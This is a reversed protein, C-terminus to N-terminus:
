FLDLKTESPYQTNQCHLISLFFSHIRFLNGQLPACPITYTLVRKIFSVKELLDAMQNLIDTPDFSALSTERKLDEWKKILQNFLSVSSPQGDEGHGRGSGPDIRDNVRRYEAILAASRPSLPGTGGDGGSGSM